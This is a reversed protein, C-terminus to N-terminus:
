QPINTSLYYIIKLAKKMDISLNEFFRKKLISETNQYKTCSTKMCRFNFGLANDKTKKIIM